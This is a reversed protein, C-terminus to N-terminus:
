TLMPELTQRDCRAKNNGMRSHVPPYTHSPLSAGEEISKYNFCTM